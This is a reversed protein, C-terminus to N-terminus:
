LCLVPVGPLVPARICLHAHYAPLINTGVQYVREKAELVRRIVREEESIYDGDNKVHSLSFTLRKEDM